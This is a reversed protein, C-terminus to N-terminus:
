RRLYQDLEPFNAEASRTNYGYGTYESLLGLRELQEMLEERSQKDQNYKLYDQDYRSTKFGLQTDLLGELRNEDGKLITAARAPQTSLRGFLSEILYKTEGDMTYTTGTNGERDQWKKERIGMLSKIPKPLARYRYASTDEEIPIGKFTNMGVGLNFPIKPIPATMDVAKQITQKAGKGWNTGGSGMWEAAAELNGGWGSLYALDDGKKIPIGVTGRTWDPLREEKREEEDGFQERPELMLKSYTRFNQPKNKAVDAMLELNKKTWTYFVTLPKIWDRELATVDSYDFLTDEVLKVADEISYGSDRAYTYIKIKDILEVQENFDMSRGSVMSNGIGQVAKGVINSPEHSSTGLTKRYVTGLLGSEGAIERAYHEVLEDDMSTKMSGYILGQSHNGGGTLDTIKRAIAASDDTRKIYEKVGMDTNVLTATANGFWNRSTFGPAYPMFAAQDNYFKALNGLGMDDLKGLQKETFQPLDTGAGTQVGKWINNFGRIFKIWAPLQDKFYKHTISNIERAVDKHAYVGAEELLPGKVKKWTSTDLDDTNKFIKIKEGARGNQIDDLLDVMFRNMVDARQAQLTQKGVSDHAFTAIADQVKYREEGLMENYAKITADNFLKRERETMMSFGEAQTKANNEMTKSGVGYVGINKFGMKDRKTYNLAHKEMPDILGQELYQAMIKSDADEEAMERVAKKLHELDAFVKKRSADDYMDAGYNKQLEGILEMMSEKKHEHMKSTSLWQAFDDVLQKSQGAEEQYAVIGKIIRERGRDYLNISKLLEDTKEIDLDMVPTSMSIADAIIEEEETLVGGTDMKSSRIAKSLVDHSEFKRVMDDGGFMKEKLSNEITAALGNRNQNILKMAKDHDTDRLENEIFREFANEGGSVYTKTGFGSTGEKTTERWAPQAKLSLDELYKIDSGDDLARLSDFGYEKIYDNLAMMDEITRREELPAKDLSDMLFGKVENYDWVGAGSEAGIYGFQSELEETLFELYGPDNMMKDIREFDVNDGEVLNEKFMGHWRNKLPETYPGRFDSAKLGPAVEQAKEDLLKQLEAEDIHKMAEERMSDYNKPSYTRLWEITEEPKESIADFVKTTLLEEEAERKFQKVLESYYGERKSELIDRLNIDGKKLQDYSGSLDFRLGSDQTVQKLIKQDILENVEEQTIDKSVKDRIPKLFGESREALLKRKELLTPTKKVKIVKPTNYQSPTKNKMIWDDALKNKIDKEAQKLFGERFFQLNAENQLIVKSEDPNRVLYDAIVPDYGEDVLDQVQTKFLGTPSYEDFLEMLLKKAPDGGAKIDYQRVGEEVAKDMREIIDEPLEGRTIRESIEDMLDGLYPDQGTPGEIIDSIRMDRAEKLLEASSKKAFFAPDDSAVKSTVEGLKEQLYEYTKPAREQLKSLGGGINDPVVVEKGKPIKSFAEDIVKINEDLEADTFFSGEKMSPLKKTPIGISNLEGRFEKAQGGLGKGALNDGFLFIKDPNEKIQARTIFSTDLPEVLDDLADPVKRTAVDELGESLDVVEDGLNVRLFKKTGESLAGTNSLFAGLETRDMNGTLAERFKAMNEPEAFAWRKVEPLKLYEEMRKQVKAAEMVSLGEAGAMGKRYSRVTKGTGEIGEFAHDSKFGKKLTGVMEDFVNGVTTAVEKEDGKMFNDLPIKKAMKWSDGIAAFIPNDIYRAVTEAKQGGQILETGKTLPGVKYLGKKTSEKAMDRLVRSSKMVETINEPTNNVGIKALADSAIKGAKKTGLESFEKVGAEKLGERVVKEGQSAKKAAASGSASMWFTPTGITDAALGLAGSTLNYGLRRTKGDKRGKNFFPINDLMAEQSDWDLGGGQAQQAALANKNGHLALENMTNAMGQTLIHRGRPADYNSIKKSNTVGGAVKRLGSEIFKFPMAYMAAAGKLPTRKGEDNYYQNQAWVFDDSWEDFSLIEGARQLLSMKDDQRKLKRYARPDTSKLLAKAFEPDKLKKNIESSNLGQLAM